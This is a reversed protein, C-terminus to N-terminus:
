PEEVHIGRHICSSHSGSADRTHSVYRGYVARAYEILSMIRHYLFVRFDPLFIPSNELM